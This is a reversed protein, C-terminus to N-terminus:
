TDTCTKLSVFCMCHASLNKVPGSSSLRSHSQADWFQAMGNGDIGFALLQHAQNIGVVNVGLIEGDDEEELVLPNM